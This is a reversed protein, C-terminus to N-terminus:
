ILASFKMTMSPGHSAEMGGNVGSLGLCLWFEVENHPGMIGSYVFLFVAQKM